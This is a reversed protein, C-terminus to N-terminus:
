FILKLLDEDIASVVASVDGGHSAAHAVNEMAAMAAEDEEKDALYISTGNRVGQALIRSEVTDLTAYCYVRTENEQGLRDVRGIAQLEFSHQLVPELLHVAGCSTLTLGASEREAHLLFVTISTDAHFKEVVSNSKSNADLSVFKIGNARFAQEVIHLSDAWNSFVVHRVTPRMIKYWKLHKVLFDIKSGYEGMTDLAHIDRQSAPSMYNIKDLARNRSDREAAAAAEDADGYIDEDLTEDEPEAPAPEGGERPESPGAEAEGPKQIRVRTAERENIPQKCTPCKRGM